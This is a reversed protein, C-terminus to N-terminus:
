GGLLTQVGRKIFRPAAGLWGLWGITQILIRNNHVYDQMWKKGRKARTGGSPHPYHLIIADGVYVGYRGNRAFRYGLEPGYGWANGIFRKDFAGIDRFDATRIAFNGEMPANIVARGPLNFNGFVFGFPTTWGIIRGGIRHKRSVFIGLTLESFIRALESIASRGNVVNVERGCSYAIEPSSLLGTVHAELWGPCPSADDDLILMIEADTAEAAANIAAVVGPSSRYLSVIRGDTEIFSLLSADLPDGQVVVRIPVTPHFGRIGQLTDRLRAPRNYSPIVIECRGQEILEAATNM